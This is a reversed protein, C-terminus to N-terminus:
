VGSESLFRISGGVKMLAELTALRLELNQAFLSM